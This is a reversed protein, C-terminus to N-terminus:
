IRKCSLVNWKSGFTEIARLGNQEIFPKKGDDPSPQNPETPPLLARQLVYYNVKLRDVTM